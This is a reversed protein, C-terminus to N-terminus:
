EDPPKYRGPYRWLQVVAGALFLAHGVDFWQAPPAGRVKAIFEERETNSGYTVTVEHPVGGLRIGLVYHNPAPAGAIGLEQELRVTEQDDRHRVM